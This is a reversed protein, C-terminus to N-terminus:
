HQIEKPFHSNQSFYFCPIRIATLVSICAPVCFAAGLLSCFKYLTSQLCSLLSWLLFNIFWRLLSMFIVVSYICPLLLYLTSLGLVVQSLNTVMHLRVFVAGENGRTVESLFYFYTVQNGPRWSHRLAALRVVAASPFSLILGSVCLRRARPQTRAM